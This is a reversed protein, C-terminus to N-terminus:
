RGRDLFRNRRRLGMLALLGTGLLLLASPEPVATTVSLNDIASDLLDVEPTPDTATIELSALGVFGAINHTTWSTTVPLSTFISGGGSFYGTLNVSMGPTYDFWLTAVDLALLNFPVPGTLSLTQPGCDGACWGFIDTGNTNIPNIGAYASGFISNVTNDSTLIFGSELHPTAPGLSGGPAVIGEFGITEACLSPVLVVLFLLIRSILRQEQNSMTKARKAASARYSTIGIRRGLGSIVSARPWVALIETKGEWGRTM